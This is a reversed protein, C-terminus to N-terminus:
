LWETQGEEYAFSEDEYPDAMLLVPRRGNLAALSTVTAAANTDYLMTNAEATTLAIPGDRGLDQIYTDPYPLQLGVHVPQFKLGASLRGFDVMRMYPPPAVAERDTLWHGYGVRFYPEHGYREPDVPIYLGNMALTGFVRCDVALGNRRHERCITIANGIARVVVKPLTIERNDRLIAAEGPEALGNTYVAAPAHAGHHSM